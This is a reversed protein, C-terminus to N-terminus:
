RYKLCGDRWTRVRTDALMDIYKEALVKCKDYHNVGESEQCKVLMGRTIRLEMVKVWDERIKSEREAVIASCCTLQNDHIHGSTTERAETNRRPPPVARCTGSM